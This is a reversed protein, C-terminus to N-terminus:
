NWANSFKQLREISNMIDSKKLWDKLINSTMEKAGIVVLVVLVQLLNRIKKLKPRLESYNYLKEQEKLVIRKDRPVTIDILHCKRETKYLVVIDSRGHQIVHDIQTNFDWLIKVRDNEVASAPKPSYRKVEGVIYFNQCLELHVIRAVNDHRQRYEKQALKCYLSHNIRKKGLCKINKKYSKTM